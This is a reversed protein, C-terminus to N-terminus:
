NKLPKDIKISGYTKAGGNFSVNEPNADVKGDRQTQEDISAAFLKGRIANAGSLNYISSDIL